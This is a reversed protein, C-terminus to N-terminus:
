DDLRGRAVDSWAGNPELRVYRHWHTRAKRRLGLKEYLLALSM